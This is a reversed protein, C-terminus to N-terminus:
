YIIDHKEIFPLNIPCLCWENNKNERPYYEIYLNNQEIVKNYMTIFSFNNAIKNHFIDPNSINPIYEKLKLIASAEIKLILKRIDDYFQKNIRDYKETYWIPRIMYIGEPAVIISAQAKGENYYKIFNLLDNASPFEYIIGDNLRGGYIQTNPHTHFLYEYQGMIETNNPLYINDDAINVRDTEASVIINDIRKNKVTIVGSHESYIYQENGNNSVLYRPWSGQNMLADIILLKNYHLPIYSFNKIQELRIKIPPNIINKNIICINIIVNIFYESPYSQHNNIKHKINDEWIINGLQYYSKSECKSCHNFSIHTLSKNYKIALKEIQSLKELFFLYTTMTKMNCKEYYIDLKNNDM